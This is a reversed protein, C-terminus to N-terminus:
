KLKHFKTCIIESAFSNSSFIHKYGTVLWGGNLKNLNKNYRVPNHHVSVINGTNVSFTGKTKMVLMDSVNVLNKILNTRGEYVVSNDSTTTYINNFYKNTKIRSNNSRDIMVLKNLFIEAISGVTKDVTNENNYINFKKDKFNYNHVKTNVIKSLTADSSENYLNFDQVKIAGANQFTEEYNEDSTLAFSGGYNYSYENKFYDKYIKSISHLQFINNRKFLFLPTNNIDLAKDLVFDINDLVSHNYCSSYDIKNTSKEWYTKHIIDKAVSTEIINKICDSCNVERDKNSLQTTDGDILFSTSYPEKNYLFYSLYADQLIFTKVKTNNRIEHVEDVIFFVYNYKLGSRKISILIINEGTEILEFNFVGKISSTDVKATDFFNADNRISLTGNYFPSNINEQITFEVLDHNTVTSIRNNNLLIIEYPITEGDIFLNSVVSTDLNIPNLEAM